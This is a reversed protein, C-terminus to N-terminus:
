VVSHAARRMDPVLLYKEEHSFKKTIGYGDLLLSFSKKWVPLPTFDRFAM